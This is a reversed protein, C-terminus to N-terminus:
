FDFIQAGVPDTWVGRDHISEDRSVPADILDAVDDLTLTDPDSETFFPLTPVISPLNKM